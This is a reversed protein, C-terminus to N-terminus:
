EGQARRLAADFEERTFFGKKVFVDVLARLLAAPDAPGAPRAAAPPPLKALPLAPDRHAAPRPAPAPEPKAPPAAAAPKAPPAAAAPKAAPAARREPAAPEGERAKKRAPQREPAPAAEPAVDALDGPITDKLIVQSEDASFGAFREAKAAASEAGAQEKKFYAFDGFDFSGRKAGPAMRQTEDPKPARDSREGKETFYEPKVKFYDAFLRLTPETAEVRGAEVDRLFDKELGIATALRGLTVQDRDRLFKLKRGVDGM